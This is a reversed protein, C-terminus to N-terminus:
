ACVGLLVAVCLFVVVVVVVVGFPVLILLFLVFCCVFMRISPEVHATHKNAQTHTYHARIFVVSLPIMYETIILSQKRSTQMSDYQPALCFVCSLSFSLRVSEILLHVFKAVVVGRCSNWLLWPFPSFFVLSFWFFESRRFGFSCRFDSFNLNSKRRMAIQATITYSLGTGFKEIHCNYNENYTYLYWKWIKHM